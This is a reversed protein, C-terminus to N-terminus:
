TLSLDLDSYLVWGRTSNGASLTNLCCNAQSSANFITPKTKDVLADYDSSFADLKLWYYNNWYHCRDISVSCVWLQVLQLKHYLIIFPSSCCIIAVKSLKSQKIQVVYWSFRWRKWCNSETLYDYGFQPQTSHLLTSSLLPSSLLASCLLVCRTPQINRFSQFHKCLLM